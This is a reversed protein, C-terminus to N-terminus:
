KNNLKELIEIAATLSALAKDTEIEIFTFESHTIAWMKEKLIGIAYDLKTEM